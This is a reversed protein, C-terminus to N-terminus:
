NATTAQFMNEDHRLLSQGIAGQLALDKDWALHTIEPGRRLEPVQAQELGRMLEPEMMDYARAGSGTIFIQKPGLLAILNAIGYGLVKGAHRFLDALDQDGARARAVLQQVSDDPADDPLSFISLNGVQMPTDRSEVYLWSADMPNLKKM